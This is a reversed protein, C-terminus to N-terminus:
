IDLLPIRSRASASKGSGCVPWCIFMTKLLRFSESSQRPMTLAVPEEGLHTVAEREEGSRLKIWAMRGPAPWPDAMNPEMEQMLVSSTRSVFAAPTCSTPVSVVAAFFVHTEQMSRISKEILGEDPELLATQGVLM